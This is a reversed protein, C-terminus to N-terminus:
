RIRFYFQKIYKIRSDAQKWYSSEPFAAVLTEYAALAKRIDRASGNAEYAQGRLLWGEDLSSLSTVFFSDLLALAQVQDGAALATKAQALVTKADIVVPTEVSPSVILSPEDILASSSSPVTTASSTKPEREISRYDPSRVKLTTKETSNLVTVAISDSTFTDQLVDFRSFNLIYNGTKQAKFTFLTDNKDLKRNEYGLGNQASSDGLFVWGSGPYWVELIQGVALTASRSPPIVTNQVSVAPSDPEKEWIGGPIPEAVKPAIETKKETLPVEKLNENKAPVVKPPVSKPTEPKVPIVPLVPPTTPVALIEPPTVLLDPEPYFYMIKEQEPVIPSIPAEQPLVVPEPATSVPQVIESKVIAENTNPVSPTKPSSKPASTCSTLILVFCLCFFFTSESKKM